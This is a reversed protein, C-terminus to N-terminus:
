SYLMAFIKTAPNNMVVRFPFLGCKLPIGTHTSLQQLRKWSKAVERVTAQWAGRDM